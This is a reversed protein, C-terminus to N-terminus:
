YFFLFYPVQKINDPQASDATSLLGILSSRMGIKQNKVEQDEEQDADNLQTSYGNIQLALQQTQKTNAMEKLDSEIATRERVLSGAPKPTIKLQDSIKYEVSSGYLDIIVVILTVKYDRERSGAALKSTMKNSPGHQILDRSAASDTGRATLFKYTKIGVSSTWSSCEVTFETTLAVGENPSVQCTGGHPPENVKVKYSAFSSRGTYHIPISAIFKCLQINM